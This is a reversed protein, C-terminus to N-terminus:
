DRPSPSTYLLCSNIADPGQRGESDLMQGGDDYDLADITRCGVWAHNDIALDLSGHSAYLTTVIDLVHAQRERRVVHRRTETAIVTGRQDRWELTLDISASIETTETHTEIPVIWGADPLDHFFNVGNM